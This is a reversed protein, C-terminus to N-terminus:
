GVEVDALDIVGPEPKRKSTRRQPYPRGLAWARWARYDEYSLAAKASAETDFRAFDEATLAPTM